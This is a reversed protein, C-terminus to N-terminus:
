SVDFIASLCEIVGLSLFVKSSNSNVISHDLRFYIIFVISPM